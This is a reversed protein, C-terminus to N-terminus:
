PYVKNVWCYDLSGIQVGMKFAILVHLVWDHKQVDISEMDSLMDTGWFINWSPVLIVRKEGAMGAMPVIEVNKGNGVDMFRKQYQSNYPLSGHKERYDQNYFSAIEPSCLLYFYDSEWYEPNAASEFFGELTAVTDTSTINAGLDIVKGNAETMTAAAIEQNIITLLGDMTASATTGGANYVGKFIGNLEVDKQAKEIIKQMLFAEFPINKTSTGVKLSHGLYTHEYALPELELEVKCTRVQIERPVFEVGTSANFTKNYPKVISAPMQLDMIPAKDKIGAMPVFYQLSKMAVLIGGILAPKNSRCYAGLKDNLKTLDISSM